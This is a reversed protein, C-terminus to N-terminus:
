GEAVVGEEDIIEQLWERYKQERKLVVQGAKRYAELLRSFFLRPLFTSFVEELESRLQDYNYDEKHDEISTTAARERIIRRDVM